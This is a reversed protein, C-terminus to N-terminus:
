QTNKRVMYIVDKVEPYKLLVAGGVYVLLATISGLLLKLFESDFCRTILIISLYMLSALLITPILEKVQRLMGMGTVSGTFLASLPVAICTHLITTYGIAIIGMKLYLACFLGLAIMIIGSIKIYVNLKLMLDSRGLVKLLSFNLSQVPWFVIPFCLIKLLPVCEAWKETILVNILPSAIASLWLMVPCLVFITIRLVRSFASILQEKDDQLKSLVPFTVSDLMGTIQQHPLSAFNQARNFVGLDSPSIFKGIVIPNINDHIKDIVSSVLIKNGFNWLYHFSEWSWGTVPRWSSYFWVLSMSVLLSAVGQFVLAWIGFGAYALAIGVLGTVITSVISIKAPTKYDLSRNFGVYHVSQFASLFMTASTVKLVDSLVPQNYFRAIFPSCIFLIVAMIFGVVTNYIFATSLDEETLEPKRVLAANFGCTIFAEAVAIFVNPMALLGFDAPTLLRALVISILFRIGQNALNQFFSWYVAVKTKQKLSDVMPM